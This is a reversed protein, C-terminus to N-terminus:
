RAQEKLHTLIESATADAAERSPFHGIRDLLARRYFGGFFRNAGDTGEVLTCTDDMGHILLTPTELFPTAEFRTQLVQYDPDADAQNWRSRYYQLVTDPFDSGKWARSAEAFDGQSYWGQPSWADWQARGFAVPDSRLLAEGQPTCLLWQYWFAKAQEMPPPAARGPAFPVSLAVLSTLRKPFLAALAYGARAGWDHGVVAFRQLKLADALDIVDQALAVPQGTRRRKRGFISSRFTSPGFGRLYPAITRYGARHLKPLVRDWTRPSDPWGHLLVVPSGSRPGDDEYALHLVPTKVDQLRM